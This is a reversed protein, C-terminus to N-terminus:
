LENRIAKEYVRHPPLNKPATFALAITDTTVTVQGQYLLTRIEGEPVAPGVDYWIITVSGPHPHIEDLDGGLRTALKEYAPKPCIFYLGKHCLPERRLVHGKYILQPMIRKNVNEWNLNVTSMEDFEKGALYSLREERYNGTTDISQVEIAVFSTMEGRADLHVLIWDIFYAGGKKVDRSPLRLEKGWRQGFVVVCANGPHKRRFLDAESAVVLELDKGFAQTAVDRLIQYGNAYLRIPCIIVPREGGQLVTCAGSPSSDHLLKTCTSELFPCEKQNRARAADSSQDNPDYGFFELIRAM